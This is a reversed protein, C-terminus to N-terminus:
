GFATLLSTFLAVLNTGLTQLLTIIALAIAACILGYEISTAGSEDKPLRTVIAFM